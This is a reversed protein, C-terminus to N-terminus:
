AANKGSPRDFSFDLDDSKEVGYIAIQVARGQIPGGEAALATLLEQMDSDSVRTANTLRSSRMARRIAEQALDPSPSLGTM